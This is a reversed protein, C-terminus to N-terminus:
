AWLTLRTFDVGGRGNSHAVFLAGLRTADQVGAEACPVTALGAARLATTVQGYTGRFLSGPLGEREVNESRISSISARAASASAGADADMPNGREVAAPSSDMGAALVAKAIRYKMRALRTESLKRPPQALQSAFRIYLGQGPAPAPDPDISSYVSAISVADADKAKKGRYSGPGTLTGSSSAASATPALTWDSALTSRSHTFSPRLSLSPRSSYSADRTVTSALTRTSSRSSSRQRSPNFAVNAFEVLYPIGMANFRIEPAMTLTHPVDSRPPSYPWYWIPARHRSPQHHSSSDDFTPHSAPAIYIYPAFPPRTASVNISPTSFQLQLSRRVQGIEWCISRCSAICAMPCALSPSYAWFPTMFWRPYHLGSFRMHQSCGQSPWISKCLLALVPGIATFYGSLYCSSGLDGYAFTGHM